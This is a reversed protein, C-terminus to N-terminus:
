KAYGRLAAYSTIQEEKLLRTQELHTVLHSARIKATLTGIQESYRAVAAADIQKSSFARDLALEAAVLESGLQRVNGKHRAMLALTAQRQAPSLNLQDQLELVHMPGPYGNLEAAKALGMGKGELWDQTEQTSLAKIDRMQEGAYPAASQAPTTSPGHHGHHGSNQALASTSVAFVACLATLNIAFFHPKM